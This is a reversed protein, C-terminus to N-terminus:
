VSAHQAFAARLTLGQEDAIVADRMGAVDTPAASRRSGAGVGCVAREIEPDTSRTASDAHQTLASLPHHQMTFGTTPSLKCLRNADSLYIKRIFRM